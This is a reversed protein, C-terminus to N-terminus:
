FKWKYSKYTKLRGNRIYWFATVTGNVAIAADSLSDFTKIYEDNISYQKIPIRNNAPLGRRRQLSAAVPKSMDRGISKLRIKERTELSHSIKKGLVKFSHVENESYTAWELNEINNNLKNGDKHNVVPKNEPNLLFTKAVLRHISERVNYKDRCLTVCYYQGRISKKLFRNKRISFVNGTTTISYLDEWKPIPFLLEPSNIVNAM